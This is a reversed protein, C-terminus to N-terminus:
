HNFSWYGPPWGALAIAGPKRDRAGGMDSPDGVGRLIAPPDSALSPAQQQSQALGLLKVAWREYLNIAVDTGPISAQCTSQRRWGWRHPVMQSRYPIGCGIKQVLLVTAPSKAHM